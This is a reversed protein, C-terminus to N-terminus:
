DNGSCSCGDKQHTHRRNHINHSRSRQGELQFTSASSM